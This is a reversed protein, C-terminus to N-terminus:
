ENLKELQDYVVYSHMYIFVKMLNIIFLMHTCIFLMSHCYDCFNQTVKHRSLSRVRLGLLTLGKAFM